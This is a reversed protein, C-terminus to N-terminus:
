LKMESQNADAKKAPPVCSCEWSSERVESSPIREVTFGMKVCDGVAKALNKRRDDWALPDDVAAFVIAGCKRCRAVYSISELKSM